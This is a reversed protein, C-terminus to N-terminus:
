TESVLRLIVNKLIGFVPLSKCFRLCEGSKSSHFHILIDCWPFISFNQGGSCTLHAYLRIILLKPPFMESPNCQYGMTQVCIQEQVTKLDAKVTTCWQRLKLASCWLMMLERSSSNFRLVHLSTRLHVTHIRLQHPDRLWFLEFLCFKVINHVLSPDHSNNTKATVVALMALWLRGSTVCAPRNM